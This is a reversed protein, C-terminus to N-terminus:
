VQTDICLTYNIFLCLELVWKHKWKWNPFHLICTTCLYSFKLLPHHYNRVAIWWILDKRRTKSLRSPFDGIVNTYLTVFFLKNPRKSTFTSDHGQATPELNGSILGKLHPIYHEQVGPPELFVLRWLQFCLFLGDLYLFRLNKWSQPSTNKSGSPTPLSLTGWKLPRITVLHLWFSLPTAPSKGQTM